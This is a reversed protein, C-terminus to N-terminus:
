ATLDHTESNTEVPTPTIEITAASEAAFAAEDPSTSISNRVRILSELGAPVVSGASIDWTVELLFEALQFASEGTAPILCQGIHALDLSYQINWNDCSGM